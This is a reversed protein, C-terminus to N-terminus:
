LIQSQSEPPAYLFLDEVKADDEAMTPLAIYSKHGQPPPINALHELLYPPQEATNGDNVMDAITETVVCFHSCSDVFGMPLSLRFGILSNREKPVSLVAFALKVVDKLALWVRMYVESLDTKAM